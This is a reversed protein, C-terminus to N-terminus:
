AYCVAMGPACARVCTILVGGGGGLWWRVNASFRSTGDPMLGAGQTARIAQCLNTKGSLCFKCKCCEVIAVTHEDTTDIPEPPKANLWTELFIPQLDDATAKCKPCRRNQNRLWKRIADAVAPPIPRRDGM